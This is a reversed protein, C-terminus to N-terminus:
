AMQRVLLPVTNYVATRLIDAEFIERGMLKALIFNETIQINGSHMTFSWAGKNPRRARGVARLEGTRFGHRQMIIPIALLFQKQFDFYTQRTYWGWAPAYGLVDVIKRQIEWQHGAAFTFSQDYGLGEPKGELPMKGTRCREWFQFSGDTGVPSIVTLSDSKM